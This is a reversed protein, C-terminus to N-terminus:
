YSQDTGDYDIWMFWWHEDLREARIVNNGNEEQWLYTEEQGHLTGEKSYVLSWYQGGLMGQSGIDFQVTDQVPDNIYFYDNYLGTEHHDLDALPLAIAEMEGRHRELTRSASWKASAFTHTSPFFTRIVGIATLLMIVAALVIIAIKWSKKLAIGGSM